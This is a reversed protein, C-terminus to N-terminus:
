QLGFWKFIDFNREQTGTSSDVGVFIAGKFDKQSLLAWVGQQKHGFAVARVAQHNGARITKRCEIYHQDRTLHNLINHHAAGFICVTNRFHFGQM